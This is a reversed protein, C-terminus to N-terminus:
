SLMLILVKGGFLILHCSLYIVQIGYLFSVDLSYLSWTSLLM